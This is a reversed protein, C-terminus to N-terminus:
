EENAEFEDLFDKKPPSESEGNSGDFVGIFPTSEHAVHVPRGPWALRLMEVIESADLRTYRKASDLTFAIQPQRGKFQKLYRRGIVVVFESPNKCDFAVDPSREHAVFIVDDPFATEAFCAMLVAQEEPFRRAKRIDFEVLRCKSGDSESIFGAGVRVVFEERMFCVVKGSVLPFLNM